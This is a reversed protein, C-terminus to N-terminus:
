ATGRPTFFFQSFFNHFFINEVFIFQPFFSVFGAALGLALLPAWFLMIRKSLVRKKNSWREHRAGNMRISDVFIHPRLVIEAESPPM